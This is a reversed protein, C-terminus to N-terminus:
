TNSDIGIALMNAGLGVLTLALFFVAAGWQPGVLGVTASYAVGCALPGLALGTSSCSQNVGLALGQVAPPVCGKSLMTVATFAFSKSAMNMCCCVVLIAVPLLPPAAAWWGLLLAILPPGASNLANLAYGLHLVYAGGFRGLLFGTSVSTLLLSFGGVATLVGISSSSLGLGGGSVPTALWVPLTEVYTALEAAVGAVQSDRSPTRRDLGLLPRANSPAAGKGLRPHTEPLLLLSGALGVMSFAFTAACPLLYPHAELLAVGGFLAPYQASPQALVGGITPGLMYGFAFSLGIMGFVQAETAPTTVDFLVIKGVIVAGSFFGQASRMGLSIAYSSSMAFGLICLGSLMLCVLLVPKRGLRDAATGYLPAGLFQGANYAAAAFGALSGLKPDDPALELQDRIMFPLFPFVVLQNLADCMIVFLM